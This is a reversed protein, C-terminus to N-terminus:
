RTLRGDTEDGDAPPTADAPLGAGSIDAAEPTVIRAVAAKLFRMRVGPAPELVVADDEVSLVTAFLGSATMIELGPALQEQLRTAARSRARAPRILLFYIGVGFLLYVLFPTFDM